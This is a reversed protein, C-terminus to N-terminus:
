RTRRLQLGVSGTVGAAQSGLEIYDPCLPPIGETSSHCEFEWGGCGDNCKRSISAKGAQWRKVGGGECVAEQPGAEWPETGASSCPLVVAVPFSAPLCCAGKVCVCM